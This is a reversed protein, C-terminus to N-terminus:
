NQMTKRFKKLKNEVAVVSRYISSEERQEIQAIEVYSLQSFRNLYFRRQQTISCSAIVELAMTIEERLLCQEEVLLQPHFAKASIEEEEVILPSHHRDINQRYNKQYKRDEVYIAYVEASVKVTVYEGNYDKIDVEYNM